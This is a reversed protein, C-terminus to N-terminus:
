TEIGFRNELLTETILNNKEVLCCNPFAAMISEANNM